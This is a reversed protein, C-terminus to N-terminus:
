TEEWVDFESGKVVQSWRLILADENATRNPKRLMRSKLFAALQPHGMSEFAQPGIDFELPDDSHAIMICLTFVDPKAADSLVSLRRSKPLLAPNVFRAPREFEPLPKLPFGSARWGDIVQCLTAGKCWSLATAGYVTAGLGNCMRHWDEVPVYCLDRLFEFTLADFVESDNGTAQEHKEALRTIERWIDVLLPSSRGGFAQGYLISIFDKM